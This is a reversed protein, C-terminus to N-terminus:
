SLLASERFYLSKRSNEENGGQIVPEWSDELYSTMQFLWNQRLLFRLLSIPLSHPRLNGYITQGMSLISSLFSPHHPQSLSTFRKCPPLQWRLPNFELDKHQLLNLLNQNWPTFIQLLIPSSLTFELCFCHKGELPIDTDYWLAMQNIDPIGFIPDTAPSPTAPKLSSTQLKRALQSEPISAPFLIILQHLCPCKRNQEKSHQWSRSCYRTCASM